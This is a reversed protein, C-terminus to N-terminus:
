YHLSLSLSLGQGCCIYDNDDLAGASERRGTFLIRGTVTHLNAFSANGERTGQEIALRIVPKRHMRFYFLSFFSFLLLLLLFSIKIGPIFYLM